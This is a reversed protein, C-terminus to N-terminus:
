AQPNRKMTWFTPADPSLQGSRLVEFGHKQYFNVGRETSTELYCPLGAEDAQALVPQILSGGVGQGQYNPAVGLMVLYWHPSQMDEHHYHEMTNFISLFGGIKRWQVKFPFQYFGLQLLKLTNMPYAGPPLWVACGKLEHSTTYIQNSSSCYNVILNSLWRLSNLRSEQEVPYFYQMIPDCNFAKALVEVAKAQQSRELPVVAEMLNSTM